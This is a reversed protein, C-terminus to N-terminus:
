EALELLWNRFARSSYDAIGRKEYVVQGEKSVVYTTPLVGSNFVLPLQTVPFHYPMTYAKGEMFSTADEPQQDLSLMVFRIDDRHSVGEYLTEITPMEAICPPCWSAWVNVFTVKGELEGFTMQEGDDTLMSFAYDTETLYPGDSTEIDTTQANFIGTYLMAQQVAVIVPTHLGTLYLAAAVAGIAVWQLLGKKFESFRAETKLEENSM